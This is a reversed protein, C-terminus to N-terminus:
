LGYILCFPSKHHVDSVFTLFPVDFNDDEAVSIGPERASQAKTVFEHISSEM